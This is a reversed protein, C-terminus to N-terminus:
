LQALFNHLSERCESPKPFANIPSLTTPSLQHIDFTFRHKARHLLEHPSILYRAEADMITQDNWDGVGSAGRSALIGRLVGSDAAPSDAPTGRLRCACFRILSERHTM